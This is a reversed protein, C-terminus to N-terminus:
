ARRLAAFATETCERLQEDDLEESDRIAPDSCYCDVDSFLKDLILFIPEPFASDDSKFLPLYRQQFVQASIEGGVFKEILRTYRSIDM